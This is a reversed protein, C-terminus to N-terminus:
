RKKCCKELEQAKVQAIRLQEMALAEQRKAELSSREAQATATEALVRQRMAEEANREAATQQMFAYGLSLIMVLMMIVFGVAARSRSRRTDHQIKKLEDRLAQLEQEQTMSM